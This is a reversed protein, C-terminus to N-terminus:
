KKASAKEARRQKAWGEKNIQRGRALALADQPV